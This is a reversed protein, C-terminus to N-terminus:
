KLLFAEDHINSLNGLEVQSFCGNKVAQENFKEMIVKLGILGQVLVPPRRPDLNRTETIYIQKSDKQVKEM